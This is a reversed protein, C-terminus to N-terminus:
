TDLASVFDNKLDRLFTAAQAIGPGILPLDSALVNADVGDLVPGLLADVASSLGSLAQGISANATTDGAITTPDPTITPHLPNTLDDNLGVTLVPSTASGLYIPLSAGIHAAAQAVGLDRLIPDTLTHRGDLGSPPAGSGPSKLGVVIQ